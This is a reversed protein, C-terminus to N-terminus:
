IARAAFLRCRAVGGGAAGSNGTIIIIIIIITTTTTALAPWLRVGDVGWREGVISGDQGLGSVLRQTEVLSQPSVAVLVVIARTRLLLYSPRQNKSQRM